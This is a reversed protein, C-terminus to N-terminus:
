AGVQRTVTVSLTESYMGVQEDGIKYIAKYKWVASNIGDPLTATDIYNPETDNALFTFGAGVTREVYIDISTADGKKWIIEPRGADLRSTLVPKMTPPDVVHEDGVIGLDQGIANNYNPAKKIQGILKRFRDVLNSAVVTPSAAFTPPTPVAGLPTGTPGSRVIKKYNSVDETKTKYGERMDFIFLWMNKDDKISTVQGATIGLLPAYGDIKNCFNVLQTKLGEDTTKIVDKKAM